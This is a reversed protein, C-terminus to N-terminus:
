FVEDLKLWKMEMFLRLSKLKFSSLSVILQLRYIMDLVVIIKQQKKVHEKLLQQRISREMM